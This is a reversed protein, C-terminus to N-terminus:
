SAQEGVAIRPAIQMSMLEQCLLKMAYPLPTMTPPPAGGEGCASCRLEGERREYPLRLDPRLQRM